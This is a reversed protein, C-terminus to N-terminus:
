GLFYTVSAKDSEWVTVRKVRIPQWLKECEQFIHKALNETTPNVVDFPPVDNLHVHDIRSLFNKFQEKIVTFDVLMGIEDLDSKELVLEVKWTHGHLEKCKGKHGRLSHSAAFEAKIALEFM